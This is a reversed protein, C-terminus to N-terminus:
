LPASATPAVAPKPNVPEEAPRVPATVFRLTVNVPVVAGAGVGAGVGLGVGVGAGAGAGIGAGAGTSGGTAPLQYRRVLPLWITSAVPRATRM